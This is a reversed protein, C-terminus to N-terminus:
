SVTVAFYSQAVASGPAFSVVTHSQPSAIALQPYNCAFVIRAPLPTIPGHAIYCGEKPPTLLVEMRRRSLPEFDAAPQVRAYWYVTGSTVNQSEMHM